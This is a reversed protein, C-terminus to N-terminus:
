VRKGVRREESRWKKDRKHWCVGKYKSSTNKHKRQNMINQNHTVERLNNRQNNLGNNDKHDTEKFGTLFKHMYITKGKGGKVWMAAYFTNCDKRVYWNYKSVLEFDEDDILAIHKRYNPSTKLVTNLIIEKM